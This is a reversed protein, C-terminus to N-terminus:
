SAVEGATVPRQARESRSKYLRLGTESLNGVVIQAVWNAYFNFQTSIRYRVQTTVLTSRADSSPQLSFSTDVLDFYHGGIVVHDDLAGRPFSDPSFRYSWRVFREPQWDLIVEDFHVRKGWHTERIRGTATQRTVGSIPPPVGIQMALAGSMQEPEIGRVDNISQWVVAAPADITISREIVGTASPTPLLPGLFAAVIPLAAACQLTQKPWDTHRCIMGMLIGGLMGLIAFMPVIIIACVFGEILLAFTGSVFLINALIPAVIYYKWNRRKQREALYVTLMGILIPAGFIFAGVMPSWYSGGGGSFFLRLALGTLAGAIVPYRMLMPLALEHRETTM